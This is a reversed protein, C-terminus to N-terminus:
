EEAGLSLQSCQSSSCPAASSACGPDDEDCLCKSSSGLDASIRSRPPLAQRSNAASAMSSLDVQSVVAKLTSLHGLVTSQFFSPRAQVM